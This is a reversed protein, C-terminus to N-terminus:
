WQWRTMQGGSGPGDNVVLALFLASVRAYIQKARRERESPYLTHNPEHKM